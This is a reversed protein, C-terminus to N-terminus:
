PVSPTRDASEPNRGPHDVQSHLRFRKRRLVGLREFIHCALKRIELWLPHNWHLLVALWLAAGLTIAAMLLTLPVHPNWRCWMMLAFSPAAATAALVAGERWVRGIEGAETEALRQVHSKYLFLGYLANLLRAAAAAALSITCAGVFMVLGLLSRRLELRTQLPMEDRLVFLEWNMGFCLVIMQTLMLLSLPVSAGLWKDGYLLHIAPGSLIALGLLVPWILAVLLRMSQIFTARLSGTERLNRALMPFLVKLATGYIQNYVLSDISSARAYLGLASLGLTRGLVIESSRECILLVGNVSLIQAGFASVKRWDALSFRVIMHQPCAIAFGVIGCLASALGGIAPSLYSYGLYASAVTTGTAVIISIGSVLTSVRFNLERQMMTAARFTLMGLLPGVAAFRLVKGAGEDGLLRPALFSFGVLAISLVVEILCNITFATDVVEPRLDPHRIVYTGVGFSSVVAVIAFAAMAVAYIGMEHPSLIRAVVVSGGFSVLSTFVQGSFAWALSKRASM